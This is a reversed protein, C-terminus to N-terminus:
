VEGGGRLVARWRLSAATVQSQSPFESSFGPRELPARRSRAFPRHPFAAREKCLASGHGRSRRQRLLRGPLRSVPRHRTETDARRLSCVPSSAAKSSGGLRCVFLVFRWCGMATLRRISESACLRQLRLASRWAGSLSPASRRRLERPAAGARRRAWWSPPGAAVPQWRM